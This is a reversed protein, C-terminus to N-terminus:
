ETHISRKKHGWHPPYPLPPGLHRLSLGLYLSWGCTRVRGLQQYGVRSDPCQLWSNININHFPKQDTETRHSQGLEIIYEPSSFNSFLVMDAWISPPTCPSWEYTHALPSTEGKGRKKDM